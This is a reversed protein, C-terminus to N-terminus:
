QKEVQYLFELQSELTKWTKETYQSKDLNNIKNVLEQLLTKNAKEVLKNLADKFQEIAEVIKGRSINENNYLSNM